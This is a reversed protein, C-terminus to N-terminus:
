RTELRLILRKFDKRRRLIADTENEFTIAVTVDDSDTTRRDKLGIRHTFRVTFFEELLFLASSRLFIADASSRDTAAARRHAVCWHGFLIKKLSRM